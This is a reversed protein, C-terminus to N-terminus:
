TEMSLNEFFNGGGPVSPLDFSRPKASKEKQNTRESIPPMPRQARLILVASGNSSGTMQAFGPRALRRSM